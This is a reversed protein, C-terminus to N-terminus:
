AGVSAGFPEGLLLQCISTSPFEVIQDQRVANHEDPGTALLLSADRLVRVFIPQKSAGPDTPHLATAILEFRFGGTIPSSPAETVPAGLSTFTIEGSGRTYCWHWAGPSAPDVVVTAGDPRLFRLEAQGPAGAGASVDVCIEGNDGGAGTYVAYKLKTPM